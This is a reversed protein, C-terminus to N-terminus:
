RGCHHANELFNIKFTCLEDNVTTGINVYRTGRKSVQIVKTKM